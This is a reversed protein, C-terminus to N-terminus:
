MDMKMKLYFKLKKWKESKKLKQKINIKDKSNMGAAGIRPTGPEDWAPPVTGGNGPEDSSCGSLAIMAGALLMIGSLRGFMKM